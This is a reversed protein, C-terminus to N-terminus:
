LAVICSKMKVTTRGFSCNSIQRLHPVSKTLNIIYSVRIQVWIRVCLIRLWNLMQRFNYGVAAMIANIKDGTEGALYNRGMPGDEKLHGIVPEIAARRKVKARLAKDLSKQGDHYIKFQKVGTLGHGRYGKDVFIGQIQADIREQTREMAAKLTKGDHPKGHLAQSDLVFTGGPSLSNPIVISVKVGFEFRKHAKGKGICEVETAHWSYM